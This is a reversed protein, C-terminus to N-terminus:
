LRLALIPEMQSYSFYALTGSACGFFVKPKCLLGCYTVKKPGQSGWESKKEEKVPVHDAEAPIILRLFIAFGMFMAGFCIFPLNFGGVGYLISGVIPSITLGIGCSMELLGIM